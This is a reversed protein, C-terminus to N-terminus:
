SLLEGNDALKATINQDFFFGHHSVERNKGAGHRENGEQQATRGLLRGFRFFGWRRFNGFVRFGRCSSCSLIVAHGFLDPIGTFVEKGATQLPIYDSYLGIGTKLAFARGTGRQGSCIDGLFASRGIGDENGNGHFVRVVFGFRDIGGHEAQRVVLAIHDLGTEVASGQEIHFIERNKILSQGQFALCSGGDNGQHELYLGAGGVVQEYLCARGRRRLHPHIPLTATLKRVANPAHPTFTTFTTFTTFFKCNFGM